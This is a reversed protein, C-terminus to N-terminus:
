QGGQLLRRPARPSPPCAALPRLAHTPSVAAPCPCTVATPPVGHHRPHGTLCNGCPFTGGTEASPLLGTSRSTESLGSGAQVGVVGHAWCTGTGEGAAPAGKGPPPVQDIFSLHRQITAEYHDRQQRLQRGLEKETEKVRRVTLDRQQMQSPHRPPSPASLALLPVRFALGRLSCCQCPAWSPLLHLTRTRTPSAPPPPTVLARQLLGVAQKKEEVELKLRMVSTSVTSGPEPRGDELALGQPPLM